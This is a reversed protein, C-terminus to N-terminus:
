ADRGGQFVLYKKEAILGTVSRHAGDGIAPTSTIQRNLSNHGLTSCSQIYLGSCAGTSAPRFDDRRFDAAQLRPCEKRAVALM